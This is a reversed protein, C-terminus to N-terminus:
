RRRKGGLVIDMVHHASKPYVAVGLGALCGIVAKIFLHHM